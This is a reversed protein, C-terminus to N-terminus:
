VLLRVADEINEPHFIIASLEPGDHAANFMHTTGLQEKWSGTIRTSEHIHGHLTVLPQREEIFRKIAISGVHVDLPVHDIKIGDLAARDLLTQYPPSHFLFIAKALDENKTMEDLDNKITEYIYNRSREVSTFGQDPALCGPDVYQSVDYKEWDKLQFPTPPVYGYGFVTYDNVVVKLQNIFQFLGQHNNTLFTEIEIRPDDNGPIIFIEPYDNALEERLKELEPFFYDPFFDRFRNSKRMTNPLLDGGMFVLEPKESAILGFLKDYRDTKGHLDSVFICKTRNM